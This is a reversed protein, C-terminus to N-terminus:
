GKIFTGTGEVVLAGTTDGSGTLNLVGAANEYKGSGELIGHREMFFSRGDQDPPTLQGSFETSITSGNPVTFVGTGSYEGTLFNVREFLVGSVHGLVTATGTVHVEQCVETTSCLESSVIQGTALVTVAKEPGALAGAAMLLVFASSLVVKV